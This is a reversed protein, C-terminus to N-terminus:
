KIDGEFLDTNVFVNTVCKKCFYVSKQSPYVWQYKPSILDGCIACPINEELNLEISKFTLEM